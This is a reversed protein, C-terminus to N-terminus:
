PSCLTKNIETMQKSLVFWKDAKIRKDKGWTSYLGGVYSKDQEFINIVAVTKLYM